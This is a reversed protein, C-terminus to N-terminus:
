ICASCTSKEVEKHLDLEVFDDTFNEGSLNIQRVLREGKYDYTMNVTYDVVGPKAHIDLPQYAVQGIAVSGFQDPVCLSHNTAAFSCSLLALFAIFRFM